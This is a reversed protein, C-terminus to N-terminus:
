VQFICDSSPSKRLPPIESPNARSRFKDNCLRNVGSSHLASLLCLCVPHLPINEANL